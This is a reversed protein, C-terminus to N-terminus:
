SLTTQGGVWLNCVVSRFYLVISRLWGSSWLGHWLCSLARRYFQLRSVCQGKNKQWYLHEMYKASWSACWFFIHVWEEINTTFSLSGMDGVLSCGVSLLNPNIQVSVSPSWHHVIFVEWPLKKGLLKLGVWFSWLIVRKNLRSGYRM